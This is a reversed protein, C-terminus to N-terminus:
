KLREKMKEVGGNIGPASKMKTEMWLKACAAYCLQVTDIEAHIIITQIQM